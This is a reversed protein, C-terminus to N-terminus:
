ALVERCLMTSFSQGAARVPARQQQVSLPANSLSARWFAAVLSLSLILLTAGVAASTPLSALAVQYSSVMPASASARHSSALAAQFSSVRPALASAQYVSPRSATLTM